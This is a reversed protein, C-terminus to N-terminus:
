ISQWDRAVQRVRIMLSMWSGDRTGSCVLRVSGLGSPGFPDSSIIDM